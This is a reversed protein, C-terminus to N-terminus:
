PTLPRHALIPPLPCDLTACIVRILEGESTTLRNDHDAVESVARLLQRRSKSKLKLLIDLSRDLINIAYKEQAEIEVGSAWNGLLAGGADFAAQAESLSEHGYDAVIALLNVAAQRLEKRSARVRPKGSPNVAQGLSISMIRYVCYEYLDVKGDVDILRSALEILYTLQPAPRLKLAPFSIELLPLRYEERTNALEDYYKRVIRAREEGMRETIVALQRDVHKGSRDFLLALTLLYSSETSHAADYLSKPISQRVQRAYEVHEHEPHGVSEAISEPLITGGGGRVPSAMGSVLAEAGSERMPAPIDRSRIQPYDNENFAPDLAKIRETLPPHTAFLGFLKTGTGFLMHSVEEPDNATLYSSEDYGGIKKLAGAIGASQRTFQVASADALFERQRSVAAKIMRACVVGIGGLIALGLGIILVVPAGRNRRSALSVHFGGRTIMRGIISLALIGFLVGMMRINLRMDGNLIHSFEHAIVGQLEDRDLLELTGRTVAIAADGPSYGAAFANIGIEEELVYIEPVPVGSAIAMEEVVNRLQRRLPDSVEASVLTGGLDAAVRGGGASLVSTKFLSAGVIFLSTIIATGVLLSTQDGGGYGANSGSSFAGFAFAVILTVGAVILATAIVYVVVLWKSARRARDQADFFNL